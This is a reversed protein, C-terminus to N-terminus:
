AFAEPDGPEVLLFASHAALFISGRIRFEFVPLPEKFSALNKAIQQSRASQDLIGVTRFYTDEGFM